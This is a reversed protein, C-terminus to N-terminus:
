SRGGQEVWSVVREMTADDPCLAAPYIMVRTLQRSRTPM